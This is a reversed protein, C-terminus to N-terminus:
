LEPLTRPRAIIWLAAVALVQCVLMVSGVPLISTIGIIGAIPAAIAGIGNNAASLMSAATGAEGPHRALALAQLCPNTVGLAFTFAWLPFLAAILPPNESLGVITMGLASVALAATSWMLIVRTPVRNSLRSGIQTGGLMLLAHSAFVLGYQTETLGFVGQFMFSSSSLYNYMGAWMFSSTLVLGVYVRDALVLRFGALMSVMRMPRRRESPLTEGALSYAGFGVVLGYVALSLFVGRWDMIRLLQSGLLPGVAIALGFIVALSALMKLMRKGTYLDRVMALAIVGTAASAAGQVFRAGVLFDINPALACAASAIAHSLAAILLPLRRGRADSWAGIFLQGLIGGVMAATFTLQIASQSASFDGAIKPFAPLYIDVTLTGLTQLFGLAIVYKLRTTGAGGAAGRAVPRGSDPSPRRAPM